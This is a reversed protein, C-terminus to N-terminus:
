LPFVHRFFPRICRLRLACTRERKYLDVPREYFEQRKTSNKFFVREHSIGGVIYQFGRSQGPRPLYQEMGQTQREHTGNASKALKTNKLRLM